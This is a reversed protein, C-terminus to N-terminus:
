TLMKYCKALVSNQLRTKIRELSIPMYKLNNIVLINNATIDPGDVLTYSYEVSTDIVSQQHYDAVVGGTGKLRMTVTAAPMFYTNKWTEFDSFRAGSTGYAGFEPYFDVHSFPYLLNVEGVMTWTVNLMKLQGTFLAVELRSGRTISVPGNEVTLMFGQESGKFYSNSCKPLQYAIENDNEAGNLSYWKVTKNAVTIEAPTVKLELVQSTDTGIPSFKNILNVYQTLTNMNVSYFNISPIGFCYDNQTAKDRYIYLQNVIEGSTKIFTSLATFDDFECIKCKAIVDDSLQQYKFYISDPLDYKIQTFDLRVAQSDQTFDRIFPNLVKEANVTKKNAINSELNEISITKDTADVLFEVNFFGEIAEKFETVTMDPLADAYNLSDVSNLYYMIKARPDDNLVNNKLTYGLLSPLKNIYYLLYPQMLINNVGNIVSPINLHGENFTYDNYIVGGILVPTCVFNNKFFPGHGEFYEGYGPYGISKLARAYDIETETGWDYMWIKLDNQAIYNLESNGAVYQFTVDVDTNNTMIITGITVKGNDILRADGKEAIGTKNNRNMLAFAKANMAELLSVTIDLTYEGATTIEPNEETITFSYDDPLLVENWEPTVTNLNIFFQIM